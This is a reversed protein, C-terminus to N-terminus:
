LNETEDTLRWSLRQSQCLSFIKVTLLFKENQSRSSRRKAFFSFDLFIKGLRRCWVVFLDDDDDDGAASM